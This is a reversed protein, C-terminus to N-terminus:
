INKKLVGKTYRIRKTCLHEYEKNLIRLYRDLSNFNSYQELKDVDVEGQSKIKDVAVILSRRLSRADDPAYDYVALSFKNKLISRTSSRPVVCPIGMLTTLVEYDNFPENDFISIFVDSKFVLESLHKSSEFMVYEEAENDKLFNKIAVFLERERWPKLSLIKFIARVGISNYYEGVPRISYFFTKITDLEFVDESVITSIEIFNEKKQKEKLIIDLGAGLNHIKKVKVPLNLKALYKIDENFTCVSDIRKYFFKNFFDGKSSVMENLTVIYPIHTFKRLAFSISWTHKLGYGHVIDVNNERIIESLFKSFSLSLKSSPILESHIIFIDEDMARKELISNELCLLYPTAGLNRHYICDDLVKREIMSWKESLCIALIKLDRVIIKESM